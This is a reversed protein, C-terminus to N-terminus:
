GDHEDGEGSRRRRQKEKADAAKQLAEAPFKLRIALDEPTFPPLIEWSPPVPEFAPAPTPTDIGNRFKATFKKCFEPFAVYGYAEDKAYNALPLNQIESWHVNPRDKMTRKYEGTEKPVFGGYHRPRIDELVECVGLADSAWQCSRKGSLKMIVKYAPLELVDSGDERGYRRLVGEISQASLYYCLSSKRGRRVLDVLTDLKSISAVEDFNAHLQEDGTFSLKEDVVADLVFSYVKELAAKYRDKFVLVMASPKGHILTMPDVVKAANLSMAAYIMLPRLKTQVTARVDRGARSFVGTLKYPSGIEPSVEGLADILTPDEALRVLDALTCTDPAWRMLFSTCALLVEQAFADFFSNPNSDNVPSWKQSFRLRNTQSKWLAPINLAIGGKVTVDIRHVEYDAPAVAQLRHAQNGEFDMSIIPKWYRTADRLLKELFSTKATGPVGLLIGGYKLAGGPLAFGATTTMYDNSNRPM